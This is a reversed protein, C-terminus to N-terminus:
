SQKKVYLIFRRLLYVISFLWMIPDIVYDFLNNSIQGHYFYTIFAIIFLIAYIIAYHLLYILGIFLVCMPMISYHFGIFYVDINIFGLTSLYLWIGLVFVLLMSPINILHNFLVVLQLNFLNILLLIFIILSSITSLEGTMGRIIYLCNVNFYLKPITVIIVIIILIVLKKSISLKNIYPITLLVLSILLYDSIMQLMNIM